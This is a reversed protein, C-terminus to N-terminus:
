AEGEIVKVEAAAEVSPDKSSHGKQRTLSEDTKSRQRSTAPKPGFYDDSDYIEPPVYRTKTEPKPSAKKSFPLSFSSLMKKVTSFSGMDDEAKNVHEELVSVNERVLAVFAELQDIKQFIGQMQLSKAYIGPLTKNLCLSTDSRILDVLGCYEDLRTLMEEISEDFSQKEENSPFTEADNNEATEPEALVTERGEQLEEDM